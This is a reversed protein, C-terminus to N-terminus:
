PCIQMIHFFCLLKTTSFNTNIEKKKDEFLEVIFILFFVKVIKIQGWFLSFVSKQRSLIDTRTMKPYDNSSLLALFKNKEFLSNHTKVYSAFKGIIYLLDWPYNQM